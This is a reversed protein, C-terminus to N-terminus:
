GPAGQASLHETLPSALMFGPSNAAHINAIAADPTAPQLENTSEPISMLVVVPPELGGDQAEAPPLQTMPGGFQAPVM